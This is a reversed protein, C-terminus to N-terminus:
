GLRSIRDMVPNHLIHTKVVADIGVSPDKLVIKWIVRRSVSTLGDFHFRRKLTQLKMRGLPEDLTEVVLVHVSPDSGANLGSLDDIWEKNTNLLEGTATVAPVLKQSPQGGTDLSWLVWRDVSAEIGARSLADEVTVATNDTIILKVPLHVQTADPTWGTLEVPDSGKLDEMVKPEFRVSRADAMYAGMSALIPDGEPSREPHPMIAMVNGAANVVAAANGQSGNPNVPYGSVMEGKADVYRFALQRGQAMRDLLGTEFLFRGEAHAFPVRIVDDPSLLRNFANSGKPLGTKLYGDDNFYGVGVIRGAQEMRNPGLAIGLRRSAFGPVLGTEVLVQAGNCIGLVPKGKGSEEIIVRMVPDLAAIVGARSRDEYSFGGVIVYGGFGRLDEVSQNWLFERGKLGVRRLALLSENECNSGPFQVVAIISQNDTM